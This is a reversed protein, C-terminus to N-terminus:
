QKKFLSLEFKEKLIIFYGILSPVVINILWLLVASVALILESVPLDRFVLIAISARIAPEIFSIMPLITTILFYISIAGLVAPNLANQAFLKLILIFQLSFVGYRVFSASLLVLAQKKSFKYESVDGSIKSKIKKNLFIQISNFNFVVVLFIIIFVMCCVSILWVYAKDIILNQSLKFTVAILGFFITIMLQFLGNAFHLLTITPRNQSSFFMIKAIFETARGPALNGAFVGAYVSKLAAKYTLPEVPKTIYQWKYSEIGWNVLMLILCVLLLIWSAYEGFTQKLVLINQPNLEAALHRYIFIFSGAGLAIKILWTIINKYRM